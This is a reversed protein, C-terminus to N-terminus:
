IQYYLMAAQFLLALQEDTPLAIYLNFVGPWISYNIKEM